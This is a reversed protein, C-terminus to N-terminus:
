KTQAQRHSEATPRTDIAAPMKDKVMERIEQRFCTAPEMLRESIPHGMRGEVRSWAEGLVGGWGAAFPPEPELTSNKRIRRHHCSLAHLEGLPPRM